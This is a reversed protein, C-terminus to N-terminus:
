LREIPCGGRHTKVSQSNMNAASADPNKGVRNREADRLARYILGWAASFRRQALACSGSTITSPLGLLSTTPCFGGIVAVRSYTSSPTSSM